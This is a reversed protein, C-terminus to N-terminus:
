DVVEVELAGGAVLEFSLVTVVLPVLAVVAGVVVTGELLEVFELAETEADLPATWAM